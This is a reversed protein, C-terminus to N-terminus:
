DEPSGSGLDFEWAADSIASFALAAAHIPRSNRMQRMVYPPLEQCKLRGGCGKSGGDTVDETTGLFRAARVLQSRSEEHEHSRRMHLRSDPPALCLAGPRAPVTFLILLPLLEVPFDALSPPNTNTSNIGTSAPRVTIIVTARSSSLAMRTQM